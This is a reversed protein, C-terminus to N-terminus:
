ILNGNLTSAAGQCYVGATLVQGNGLPTAIVTGCAVASLQSYATNVDTAAQASTADAVHISGVLTGPPFANFTGADTGVNGTVNTAGINDFTGNATFLAFDSATGLAPAQAFNINPFCFLIIVAIGFVLNNKM